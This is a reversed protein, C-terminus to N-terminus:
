KIKTGCQTCFMSDGSVSAGCSSCFNTAPKASTHAQAQSQVPPTVPAAPPQTGAFNAKFDGGAIKSLVPLGADKGQINKLIALICLLILAVYLLGGVLLRSDSLATNVKYLEVWLFFRALSGFVLDIILIILSYCISLLLAQTVQRNLWKDREALLAFGAVLLVGVPQLLVTFAFAIVAVTPLSFGFKSKTM